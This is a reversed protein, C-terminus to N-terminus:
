REYVVLIIRERWTHIEDVTLNKIAEPLSNFKDRIDLTCNMRDEDYLKFPKRNGKRDEFQVEITGTITEPEFFQYLKM